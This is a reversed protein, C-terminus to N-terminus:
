CGKLNRRVGGTIHNQRYKRQIEISCKSTCFNLADELNNEYLLNRFQEDTIREPAGDRHIASLQSAVHYLFAQEISVNSSNAFWYFFTMDNNLFARYDLDINPTVVRFIGGLKLIRYVEKFMLQAAEDTLSAITFRSHCLEAIATDVPIPHLSLLDHAIDFKSNYEAQKEGRHTEKWPRDVDINTWCPHYLGGGFGLYAGASINYFRRNKVSEEGYLKLYLPLDTGKKIRKLNYGFLRFSKILVKFGLNRIGMNKL